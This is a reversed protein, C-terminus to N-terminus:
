KHKVDKVKLVYNPDSIYKYSLSVHFMNHIHDMSMPLALWYTVKGMLELVEFPRVFRLVLKGKKYFRMVHKYLALRVFVKDGM